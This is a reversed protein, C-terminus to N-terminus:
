SCSASQRFVLCRHAISRAARRAFVLTGFAALNLGRPALGPGSLLLVEETYGNWVPCPRRTVVKNPASFAALEAVTFLNREHNISLLCSTHAAVWRFYYFAVAAPMETISDVNLALDFRRNPASYLLKIRGDSSLDDEGAFWLADPGLARGLFCAQAVIGLPLDITTYDMGALYGYYAARGMGPGIEVILRAAPNLEQLRKVQYAACRAREDRLAEGIFESPDSLRTYSRCLNDAGHYLDTTTPDNFIARLTTNDAALLAAHVDRRREEHVAWQGRPRATAAIARGYAARVRDLFTDSLHAGPMLQM